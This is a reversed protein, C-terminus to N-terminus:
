QMQKLYLSQTLFHVHLLLGHLSCNLNIDHNILREPFAISITSHPRVCLPYSNSTETHDPTESLSGALDTTLTNVNYNPPGLTPNSDRTRRFRTIKSFQKNCKLPVIHQKRTVSYSASLICDRM